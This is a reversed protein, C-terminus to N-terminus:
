DAEPKSLFLSLFIVHMSIFSSVRLSVKPLSLLEDESVFTLQLSSPPQWASKPKPAPEEQERNVPVSRNEKQEDGEQQQKSNNHPEANCALRERFPLQFDNQLYDPILSLYFQIEQEQLRSQEELLTLREMCAERENLESEFTSIKTEVARIAESLERYLQQQSSAPERSLILLDRLNETHAGLEEFM